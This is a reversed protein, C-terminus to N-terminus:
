WVYSAIETVLIVCKIWNLNTKIIKREIKSRESLLRKPNFIQGVEAEALLGSGAVLFLKSYAVESRGGCRSCSCCSCSRSSRCCSRGGLRGWGDDNLFRGLRLRLLLGSNEVSDLVEEAGEDSAAAVAGEVRVDNDSSASAGVIFSDHDVLLFDVLFHGVSFHGVAFFCGDVRFHCVLSFSSLFLVDILEM